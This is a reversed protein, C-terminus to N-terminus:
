GAPETAEPAQLVGLQTLFSMQDYVEWDEAILGENVVHLFSMELTIPQNNAPVPPQGPFVLDNEFTGTLTVRTAVESGQAVTDNITITADPMSQWLASISAVLADIGPTDGASDHAVYDPSFVQRLVEESATNFGVEYAQRVVETNAAENGSTTITEAMHAEETEEAMPASGEPAPIIGLQTLFPLNDLYDWEEVLQGQENLRLYVHVDIHLDRGTAPIPDQGPFTLEGEMLGSQHFVFFADCGEVLLHEIHATSTPMATRLALMQATFEERDYDDPHTTYDPAFLEDVVAANGQNFGEEIVRQINTRMQAEDCAADQAMVPISFGAVSVLVILVIWAKRFM